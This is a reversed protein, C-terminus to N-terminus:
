IGHVIEEDRRQVWPLIEPHTVIYFQEAAIGAFVIEAVQAPQLTTERAPHFRPLAARWAQSAPTTEGQLGAPRNRASDMIRTRVAGACVVSVKLKETRQALSYRLTESLGLVAHKSMNYPAVPNNSLLATASATNVIHGEADQALMIPVFVSLAHIVSWVNVNMVWEWDQQTSEWLTSGAIVGANNFLLHVAGFADLTRQALAEVDARQSVDTRVSQVRAGETRLASETEALDTASIDALMVQMGLRAAHAALARGIGSAAGTVVAVKDTFTKVGAEEDGCSFTV